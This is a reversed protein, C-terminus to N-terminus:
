PGVAGTLELQRMVAAHEAPTIQGVRLLFDARQAPTAKPWAESVRGQLRLERKDNRTLRKARKVM